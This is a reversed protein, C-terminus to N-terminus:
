VARRLAKVAAWFSVLLFVVFWVSELLITSADGIGITLYRLIDTHWTLPNLLSLSHFWGPVNDLPYFMSSLFILVFYAVNLITNFLDNRRILFAFVALFFFWGATGVIVALITVAIWELQINLGLLVVAALLALLCQVVSLLALFLIKGVLFQARTMPYTLFEYFIGNDRDVFFGYSQNIASGFCSMSLVAAVFFANYGVPTGGTQMGTGVAKDFAIGFTLMYLLPLLLDFFLWVGSMRILFERYLIAVIPQV